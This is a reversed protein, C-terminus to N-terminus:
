SVCYASHVAGSKTIVCIKRTIVFVLNKVMLEAAHGNKLSMCSIQALVCVYYFSKRPADAIVFATRGGAFPFV